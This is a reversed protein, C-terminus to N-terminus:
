KAKNFKADWEATRNLFDWVREKLEGKRPYNQYRTLALRWPDGSFFREYLVQRWAFSSCSLDWALRFHSSPYDLVREDTPTLM